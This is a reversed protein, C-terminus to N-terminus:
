QEHYYIRELQSTPVIEMIAFAKLPLYHDEGLKIVKEMEEETLLRKEEGTTKIEIVVWDKRSWDYDAYLSYTKGDPTQFLGGYVNSM